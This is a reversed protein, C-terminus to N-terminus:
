KLNPLNEKPYSFWFAKLQFSLGLMFGYWVLHVQLDM